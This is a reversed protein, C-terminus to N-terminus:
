GTIRYRGDRDPCVRVYRYDRGYSDIPAPALRCRMRSYYRSDYQGSRFDRSERYAITDNYSYYPGRSDCRYRDNANGVAGGIGAGVVGGLVAGETRVGRGAVNSGLAAGALAGIIAGATASSHDNRCVVQGNNDRGYDRRSYDRDGEYRSWRAGDWTPEPGYARIYAGYGYRRDYDARAREWEARRADYDARAAQYGERSDEYRARRADYADKSAEYQARDRQYQAQDQQSQQTPQYQPPSQQYQPDRQYQPPAPQYPQAFAPLATALALVSALGIKLPTNM